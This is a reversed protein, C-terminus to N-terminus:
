NKKSFLGQVGVITVLVPKSSGCKAHVLEITTQCKPHEHFWDRLESHVNNAYPYYEEICLHCRFHLIDLKFAPQCITRWHISLLFLKKRKEIQFIMMEQLLNRRDVALKVVDLFKWADGLNSGM